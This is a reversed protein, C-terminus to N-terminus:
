GAIGFNLSKEVARHLDEEAFSLYEVTSAPSQHGLAQQVLFVDGTEAYLRDALTKRMTHTGLEGPPGYLGARRYARQLIRAAQYRSLARANGNRSPFLPAAPHYHPTLHYEGLWDAVADRAWPALFASRGRHRGKTARRQLRVTRRIERPGTVDAVTLSLLESIRFGTALGIAFLARDRLAFHGTFNLWVARAEDATIPRAGRM